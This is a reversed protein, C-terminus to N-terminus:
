RYKVWLWLARALALCGLALLVRYTIELIDIKSSKLVKNVGV